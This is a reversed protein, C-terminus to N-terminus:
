KVLVYVITLMNFTAHAVMAPLLSRSKYSLLSFLTGAVFYFLLKSQAGHAVSFALASMFITTTPNFTAGLIEEFAGRFLSEEAFPAIVVLSLIYLTKNMASASGTLGWLLTHTSTVSGRSALLLIMFLAVGLVIGYVCRTTTPKARKTHKGGVWRLLNTGTLMLAAMILVSAFSFAGGQLRPVVVIGEAQLDLKAVGLLLM